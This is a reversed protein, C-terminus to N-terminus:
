VEVSALPQIQEVLAPMEYNRSLRVPLAVGADHDSALILIRENEARFGEDAPQHGIVFLTTSWAEALRDALAQDHERGWVLNYAHGGVALDADSLTRHIVEPDFDDITDPGPLSHSFLIGNATRVALLMSRIFAHMAHRVTEANERYIEELGESFADVLAVGGKYIDERALQALEHNGLMLHVQSPYQLKLAATKALMRVSYDKGDILEDGHIVEHLILHHYRSKELEALRILRVFNLEHDHLDGSMLVRGRAPLHLAAGRRRRSRRNARAAKEFLAVVVRSDDLDIRELEREM